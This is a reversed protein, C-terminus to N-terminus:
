LTWPGLAPSWFGRIRSSPSHKSSFEDWGAQPGAQPPSDRPRWRRPTNWRNGWSTARGWPLAWPRCLWCPTTGTRRWSVPLEWLTRPKVGSKKPCSGRTRSSLVATQGAPKTNELSRQNGERKEEASEHFFHGRGELAVDDWHFYFGLSLYTNSSQPPLNVPGHVAAEVETSYNELM